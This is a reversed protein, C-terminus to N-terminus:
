MTDWKDRDGQIPGKPGYAVVSNSHRVSSQHKIHEDVADREERVKKLILVLTDQTVEGGANSSMKVAMELIDTLRDYVALMAEYKIQEKNMIIAVKNGM